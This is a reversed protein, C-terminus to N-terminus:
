RKDGDVLRRRGAKSMKLSRGSLLSISGEDLGERYIEKIQDISVISSRHIRVFNQPDLRAALDTITERLMYRHGQAHICCYYEAAEIWEIKKVPLLIEKDGDKILLRTAFTKPKVEAAQMSTFMAAFQAQTLLAARSAIRDRVRDLAASLREPEVPKTLYDIAQVDFARVAHEHYATVFITPPLYNLGIQEVVDFGTIGPMQIDLFLLDISKGKLYEVAERGNRCQAVVEIDAHASLLLCLLDRALPEDDVLVARLTM